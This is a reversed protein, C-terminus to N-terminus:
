LFEVETVGIDFAPINKENFWGPRYDFWSIRWQNDNELQVQLQYHAGYVKHGKEDYPQDPIIRGVIMRATKQDAEPEIKLVDAFHQMWPWHRRFNKQQGIISQRGKLRGMPSFGGEADKSYSDSLLSIDNQDIAWSYKSYLQAVAGALETQQQEDRVVSWPSNLESVIVPSPDGLQWGNDTPIYLWHKALSPDGKSWNAQIRVEHLLIEGSANFRFQFIVSGGFLFQQRGRQLLGMVYASSVAINNNGIVTAHNSTRMWNFLDTDEALLQKWEAGGHAEGHQGSMLVTDDALSPFLTEWQGDSWSNFFSNIISNVATRLNKETM